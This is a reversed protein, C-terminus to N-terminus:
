DTCAVVHQHQEGLGEIGLRIEDGPKLYTPPKQGMGVGPPTGTIVIDGPELIMVQSLYAVLHAVGFIMTRTNGTQRRTGNVDLWLDLNQPDEIEDATVLWPGLPGFTPASKGKIWQGTGEIQFARESVDNCVMYGFIHSLAEDESIYLARKGIVFGLEVEWDLKTSGKPVVVDDDPGVICSPAKSFVVPEAPPELGSEIAHDVYNLGIAIFHGTTKVPPGFRIGAEVAPLTSPDVSALRSKLDETMREPTFDDIIASLDRITGADDLIGPKENGAAGFRVLKM